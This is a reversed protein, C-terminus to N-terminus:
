PCRRLRNGLQPRSTFVTYLWRTSAIASASTRHIFRWGPLAAELKGRVKHVYVDISRDGDRLPHGWVAVSLENRGVIRPARRALEVLVGYERVSLNLPRGAALVLADGVRVELEGARIVQDGPSSHGYAAEM